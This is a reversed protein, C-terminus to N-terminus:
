DTHDSLIDQAITPLAKTLASFHNAKPITRCRLLPNRTSACLSAQAEANAPSADGEIIYTPQAIDSLWDIPSRLRAEDVPLQTFALGSLQPPYDSVRAVPGFAYVARFPNDQAAVLLALTGGTSHGGLYIRGPDVYDLKALQAAAALVDDTEGLLFERQGRQDHSGRLTPFMMIVGAERLARASQDNDPPGPTWFDDLANSDGGTLWIIAPHRRGDRPDPTVFAAFRGVHPTLYDTRVFLAAPPQPLPTRASPTPRARTEFGHRAQALASQGQQAMEVREDEIRVQRAAAHRANAAQVADHSARTICRYRPDIDYGDELAENVQAINLRPSACVAPDDAPTRTCATLWLGLLIPWGLNSGLRRIPRARLRLHSVNFRSM